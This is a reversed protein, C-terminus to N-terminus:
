ANVDVISQLAKLCSYFTYWGVLYIDVNQVNQLKKHEGFIYVTGGEVVLVM